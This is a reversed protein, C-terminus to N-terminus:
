RKLLIFDKIIKDMDSPLDANKIAFRKVKMTTLWNSWFTRIVDEEYPNQKDPHLGLVLIELNSLDDTAPIFGYGKEKIRSSWNQTNLKQSRIYQPILYSTFNDKKKILDKHYIYGDTLIILINRFENEICYDMVKSKFFGWTNSGVFDNDAIAQNYIGIPLNHYVSDIKCLLENTITTKDVQFKLRNSVSSIKKSKPEPDFFLQIKDNMQNIRKIRLHFNFAEAISQIYEVDREYYEMSEKPFKKPDIRDSLDLLISINLNEKQNKNSTFAKPIPKSDFCSTIEKKQEEKGCSFLILIAIFNTYLQKM